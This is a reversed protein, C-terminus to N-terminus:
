IETSLCIFYKKFTPRHKAKKLASLLGSNLSILFFVKILKPYVGMTSGKQSRVLTQREVHGHM